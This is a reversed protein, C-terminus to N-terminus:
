FLLLCVPKKIELYKVTAVLFPDGFSERYELILVSYVSSYSQILIVQSTVTSRQHILLHDRGGSKKGKKWMYKWSQLCQYVQTRVAMEDENKRVKDVIEVLIKLRKSKNRYDSNEKDWLFNNAAILDNIKGTKDMREVSLIVLARVFM